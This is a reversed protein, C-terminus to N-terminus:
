DHAEAGRCRDPGPQRRAGRRDGCRHMQGDASLIRDGARFQLSYFAMDWARTANEIFAVEDRQCKLLAATADYFHEMGAIQKDHAEYGGIQAELELHGTVAQLTKETMLGAGANNFHLVQQCGPTEARLKEIDLAM